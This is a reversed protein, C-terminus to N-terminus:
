PQSGEFDTEPLAKDAQWANKMKIPYSNRLQSGIRKAMIIIVYGLASFFGLEISSSTVLSSSGV